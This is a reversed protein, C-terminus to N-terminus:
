EEFTLRVGGPLDVSLIKRAGLDAFNTVPKDLRILAEPARVATVPSAKGADGGKAFCAIACDTMRVRGDECVTFTEAAILLRKPRYDLRIAAHLPRDDGPFAHRLRAELSSVPAPEAKKAPVDRIAVGGDKPGVPKPSGLKQRQAELKVMRKRAAELDKQTLHLALKDQEYRQGKLPQDGYARLKDKLELERKVLDKYHDAEAAAELALLRLRVAAETGDAEKEVARVGSSLALVAFGAVVLGVRSAMVVDRRFGVPSPPM